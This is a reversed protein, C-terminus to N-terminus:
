PRRQPPRDLKAPAPVEGQVMVFGMMGQGMENAMADAILYLGPTGYHVRVRGAEQPPLELVQEAGDSQAVLLLHAQPDNNSFTIVLDGPQNMLILSPRLVVERPRREVSVRAVGDAGVTAHSGGGKAFLQVPIRHNPRSTGLMAEVLPVM